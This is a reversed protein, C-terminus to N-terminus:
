KKLFTITLPHALRAQFDNVYRFWESASKIKGARDWCAGNYYVFPVGSTVKSLSLVHESTVLANEKGEQLISAVGTTGDAKDTPEWYAAVGTQENNYVVGAEKRKALGIVVPLSKTQSFTFVVSTKNLQSGADLSITRVVSVTQTGVTWPDYELQFTSRLPGNDLVKWRRFNNSYCISDGLYPLVMGDGLSKGVHYYDMGDGHDIHYEGRKYRENLILRDTRKVWVDTGWGMESPFNELAKGYMRFAIADNEWAFDDKREPVFRCYTKCTVKAPKGKEVDIKVIGKAHLFVLMLVNEVHGTGKTELQYPIEKKTTGDILKFNTSDIQPFQQALENWSVSVLETRELGTPNNILM